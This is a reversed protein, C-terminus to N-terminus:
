DNVPIAKVSLPAPQGAPKVAVFPVVLLTHPTPLVSVTLPPLEIERLPPVSAALPLQLMGTVTVPVVAPVFAFVVLATVAVPGTAKVPLVPVALRTTFM